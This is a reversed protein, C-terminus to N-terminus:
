AARGPAPRDRKRLLDCITAKDLGFTEALVSTSVGAYAMQVFATVAAEVANPDQKQNAAPSLDTTSRVTPTGAALPDHIPTNM